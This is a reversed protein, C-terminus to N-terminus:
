ATGYKGQETQLLFKYLPVVEITVGDEIVTEEDEYTVIVFRM